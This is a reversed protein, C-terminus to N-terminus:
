KVINVNAYIIIIMNVFNLYLAKCEFYVCLKFLKFM